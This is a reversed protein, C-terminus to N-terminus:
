GMNPNQLVGMIRQIRDMAVSEQFSSLGAPSCLSLFRSHAHPSSARPGVARFWVVSGSHSRRQTASSADNCGRRCSGGERRIETKITWRSHTIMLKLWTHHSITLYVDTCHTWDWDIASWKFSSYFYFLYRFLLGKGKADREANHDTFILNEYRRM